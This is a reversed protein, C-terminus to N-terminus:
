EDYFERASKQAQQDHNLVEDLGGSLANFNAALGSASKSSLERADAFDESMRSSRSSGRSFRALRKEGSARRAHQASREIQLEGDSLISRRNPPPRFGDGDSLEDLYVSITPQPLEAEHDSM